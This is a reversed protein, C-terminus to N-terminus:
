TSVPNSVGSFTTERSPMDKIKGRATRSAGGVAKQTPSGAPQPQPQAYVQQLIRISGPMQTADAPAGLFKSISAREALPLKMDPHAASYQLVENRMMAYISPYNAQLSQLHADSLTGQAVHKMAAMPNALIEAKDHFDLKQQPSPSWNAPAFPMPPAIPKPFQSALYGLSAAIRAQYAQAVAPATSVFPSSLASTAEAMAQPNSAFTNLRDGLKSFQQDSSLGSTSGLLSQMHSDSPTARVLGTTAMNRITDGITGMTAQLRKASESAMVASFVEPGEKAAKKTLASMLVLGKDEAWKKAVFDLPTGAFKGAYYGFMAGPGGGIAGGIASGVAGTGQSIMGSGTHIFDTLSVSRNAADQADLNAAGKELESLKAYSVKAKQLSGVLAPQDSAVATADAAQHVYDKAVQYAASKMQDLPTVTELGRVGGENQARSIGTVWKKRLSTLFNQADEFSVVKQGGIDTTPLTLASNFVLEAAARQDANMPMHLEPTNLTERLKSALGVPTVAHQALAPDKAMAGDLSTIADGMQKGVTDHLAEVADGIDQRTMGPKILGQDHLFDGLDQARGPGMKNLQAKTMGTARLGSNNAFTDLKESVGESGLADAIKSLVAEGAGKALSSGLEAGGGLAAGAGIGWLLTEAARTPDGFAAHVLAQPAALAAGQTAYNAATAALRSGLSAGAAEAAPAVGRAVAQGALDLGKFLGGGALMSAGIGVAGGLMRAGSHYSEAAAREAAEEPTDTHSEIAEPVGLLAQNLASSGAAELSGLAGKAAEQKAVRHQLEEEQSLLSYHGTALASVAHNPDATFIRGNADKIPIPGAGADLAYKGSTLGAQADEPSTDVPQSTTRDYVTPM